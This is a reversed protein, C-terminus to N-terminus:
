KVISCSGGDNKVRSCLAAANERSLGDAHARGRRLDSGRAFGARESVGGLRELRIVGSAEIKRVIFGVQDMHAFLMVTPRDAEGPATAILNGVKDTKTALGLAQM